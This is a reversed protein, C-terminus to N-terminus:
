TAAKWAGLFCGEERWVSVPTAALPNSPATQSLTRSITDRCLEAAATTIEFSDSLILGLIGSM